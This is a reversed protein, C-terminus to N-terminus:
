DKIDLKLWYTHTTGDVTIEYKYETTYFGGSIKSSYGGTVEGDAAAAREVTIAVYDHVCGNACDELDDFGDSDYLEGNVKFDAMTIDDKSIGTFHAGVVLYDKGGIQAHLKDIIMSENLKKNLETASWTYTLTKGDESISWRIGLNYYDAALQDDVTIGGSGEEEQGAVKVIYVYKANHIIDYGVIVIDGTGINDVKADGLRARDTATVTVGTPIKTVTIYITDGTVAYNPSDTTKDTTLTGKNALNHGGPVTGYWDVNYLTSQNVPQTARVNVYAYTTIDTGTKGGVQPAFDTVLQRIATIVGYSDFKFEYLGTANVGDANLGDWKAGTEYDYLVKTYTTGVPYVTHPYAANGNFQKAEGGAAKVQATTTVDTVYAVISTTPTVNNPLQALSKVGTVVVLTAMGDSDMAVCIDGIVKDPISKMGVYKTFSGDSNQILYVTADNGRVHKYKPDSASVASGSGAAATTPANFTVLTINPDNKVLQGFVDVSNVKDGFGFDVIASNDTNLNQSDDNPISDHTTTWLSYTGDDNKAYRWIHGYYAPNNQYGDAVLHDTDGSGIAGNAQVAGFKLDQAKKDAVLAQDNSKIIDSLGANKGNIKSITVEGIPADGETKDLWLYAGVYGDKLNRHVWGIADIVAYDVPATNAVMGIVNNGATAKSENVLLGKDDVYLGDGYPTYVTGPTTPNNLWFDVNETEADTNVTAEGAIYWTGSICNVLIYNNRNYIDSYQTGNVVDNIGDLGKERASEFREDESGVYVEFDISRKTPHDNHDLVSNTESTVKALWTEYQVIQYGGEVAYVETVVGWDGTYYGENLDKINNDDRGSVTDVFVPNYTEAKKDTINQLEGNLYYTVVKGEKYGDEEIVDMIDCEDIARGFVALPKNVGDTIAIGDVLWAGSPRGYADVEDHTLGFIKDGLTVGTSKYGYLEPEVVDKQLARFMMEAVQQRTVTRGVTFPLDVTIGVYERDCSLAAVDYNAGVFEDKQGWGLMQLLLTLVQYSTVPGSPNFETQAANSGHVWNQNYAYNIYGAYWETEKVDKFIDFGKYDDARDSYGTGLRYAIGALEARTVAKDPNMNGNQDGEFVGLKQLVELAEAYDAGIKADDKFSTAANATVMLSLVMMMALVLALFKKLNRM